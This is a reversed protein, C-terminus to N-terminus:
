DVVLLACFLYQVSASTLLKSKILAILNIKNLIFLQLIQYLLHAGFIPFFDSLAKLTSCIHLTEVPPLFHEIGFHDFTGPCLLLIAHEDLLHLHIAGLVPALNSVIEFAADALLASLAPVVV